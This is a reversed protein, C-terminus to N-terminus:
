CWTNAGGGSGSWAVAGSTAFTARFPQEARLAVRVVLVQRPQRTRTPRLRGGLIRASCGLRAARRRM